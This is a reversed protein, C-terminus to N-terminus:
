RGRIAAAASQMSAILKLEREHRVMGAPSEPSAPPPPGAQILRDLQPLADRAATGMRGLGEVITERAALTTAKRSLASSLTPVAPRGLGLLARAARVQDGASKSDLGEALEALEDGAAASSGSLAARLGRVDAGAQVALGTYFRARYDDGSRHFCWAAGVMAEGELRRNVAPVREYADVAKAWQRGARYSRAVGLAAEGSKPDIKLARDYAAVAEAVRPPKFSRFVGGLDIFASASQGEPRGTVEILAAVSEELRGDYALYLGQKHRYDANGPALTVARGLVDAATALDGADYAATGLAVHVDARGPLSAAARELAARAGDPDATRSLAEGLLLDAEGSAKLDDPLARLGALAGDGDGERLRVRLTGIRPAGWTPDLGAAEDYAAGAQPLQGRSEFVRGVALKALASKPELFAAQQAAAVAEGAKDLPDEALLALGVAAQALASTPDAQAAARAAEVAPGPKGQAALALALGAQAPLSRPELELARRYAAEADAGLWAERLADGQAVHVAAVLPSAAVARSATERAAPDGARAQARALAALSEAGPEAEVAGRGFDLADRVTGDRLAFASRERFVRARVAPPAAAALDGARALAVGAEDRKGLRMLLSALALQPLPDRRAKEAAKQVTKVAEDPKGQALQKEAKAVADDLRKDAGAPVAACLVLVAAVRVLAM